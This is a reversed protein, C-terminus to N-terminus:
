GEKGLQHRKSKYYGCKARLFFAFVDWTGVFLKKFVKYKSVGFQRVGHRVFVERIVQAGRLIAILPLFRHDNRWFSVGQIYQARFGVFSGSNSHLPSNFFLTVLIDYFSTALRLLRRHKRCERLGVVLDAGQEFSTVFLPLDEPQDQLDADMRIIVDGKARDFAAQFAGTQGSRRQLFVGQVRPDQQEYETIVEKTQDTSADDILLLEFSHNKITNITALLRPVLVKLSDQENHSPIAVSFMM